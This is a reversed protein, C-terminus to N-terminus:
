CYWWCRLRDRMGLTLSCRIRLYLIGDSKMSDIMRVGREGCWRKRLYGVGVEEDGEGFCM